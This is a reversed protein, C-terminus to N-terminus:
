GLCVTSNIQASNQYIDKLLSDGVLQGYHHGGGSERQALLLSSPSPFFLEIFCSFKVSIDNLESFNPFPVVIVDRPTGWLFLSEMPLFSWGKIWIHHVDVLYAERGIFSSVMHLLIPTEGTVFWSALRPFMQFARSFPPHHFFFQLSGTRLLGGGQGDGCCQISTDDNQHFEIFCFISFNELGVGQNVTSCCDTTNIAM